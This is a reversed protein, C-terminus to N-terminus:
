PWFLSDSRLPLFRGQDNRPCFFGLLLNALMVTLSLAGIGGSSQFYDETQVSYFLWLQVSLLLFAMRKPSFGRVSFKLHESGIV